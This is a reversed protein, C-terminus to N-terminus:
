SINFWCQAPDRLFSVSIHLLPPQKFLPYKARKTKNQGETAGTADKCSLFIEM